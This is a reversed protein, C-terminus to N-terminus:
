GIADGCLRPYTGTSAANSLSATYIAATDAAASLVAAAASFAVADSLATAAAASLATVDSLDAADASLSVSACLCPLVSVCVRAQNCISTRLRM